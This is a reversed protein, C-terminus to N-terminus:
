GIPGGKFGVAHEMHGQSTCWGAVLGWRFWDQVGQRRRSILTSVPSGLAREEGNWMCLTWSAGREAAGAHIHDVFFGGLTGSPWVMDDVM